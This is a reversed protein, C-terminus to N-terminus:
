EQSGLNSNMYIDAIKNLKIVLPHNPLWCADAIGKPYYPCFKEPNRIRSMKCIESQVESLQDHTMYSPRLDPSRLLVRIEEKTEKVLKDFVDM